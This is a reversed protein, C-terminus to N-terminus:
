AGGEATGVKELESEFERVKRQRAAPLLGDRRYLMMFVLVLGFLLFQYRPIDYSTGFRSNVTNGIETLGTQNFWSVIVAGLMVGWVNGMGGVIVMALVIISFQFTFTDVNVIGVAVGYFAGAVGGIAAGVAYSALKTRMLPVGMLSAALEDERIALWARGLKGVRLRLSVFVFLAGLALIIYYRVTFDFATVVAPVGPLYGLLGMGIPDLPGIGKTGNTLNFGGIGDGNRVAQPMIEGFGLTVIALYDSKLRLTPLGIIVGWIAAHIAAIIAVLWFSLHIGFIAPLSASFLHFNTQYFFDSMLWGSTYAGILFFAVYGLDLLGAYGVVVNLGLAFVAYIACFVVTTMPLWNDGVIPQLSPVAIALAVIPIFTAWTPLRGFAARLSNM